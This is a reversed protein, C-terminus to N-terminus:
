IMVYLWCKSDDSQFGEVDIIEYDLKKNGPIKRKTEDKMVWMGKTFSKMAPSTKFLEENTSYRVKYFANCFSSKGAGPVRLCAVFNNVSKLLEPKIMVKNGVYKILEIVTNYSSEM